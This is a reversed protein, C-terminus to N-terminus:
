FVGYRRSEIVACGVASRDPHSQGHADSIVVVLNKADVDAFIESTQQKAVFGDPVAPGDRAVIKLM